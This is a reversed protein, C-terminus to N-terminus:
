SKRPKSPRVEVRSPLCRPDQRLLNLVMDAVDEPRLKWDAGHVGDGGAFSTLVSGPAVCSVRIDDFRLEQMLADSFANVGAKSACYAAGGVFPNSGALSSINVIYGGGRRRLHPIAAHCAHFVGTLNTEIVTAWQEPTMDSVPAFTGVGANNVVVDLGGFHTVAAEIAREVEAASRM